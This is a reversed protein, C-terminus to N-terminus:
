GLQITHCRWLHLHLEFQMMMMINSDHFLAVQQGTGTECMWLDGTTEEQNRTGKSTYNKIMRPLRTHPMRKVHWIWNRRYDQIKDSVPTINLEKAIETQKM